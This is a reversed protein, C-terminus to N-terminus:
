LGAFTKVNEVDEKLFTAIMNAKRSIWDSQGGTYWHAEM